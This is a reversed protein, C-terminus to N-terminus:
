ERSAINCHGKAGLDWRISAQLDRFIKIIQMAKLTKPNGEELESPM